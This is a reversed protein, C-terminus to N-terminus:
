GKRRQHICLGGGLHKSFNCNWCLLQFLSSNAEGNLIKAYLDASGRPLGERVFGDNMIHDVNLKDPDSELCCTCRGGLLVIIGHKLEVRRTRRNRNRVTDSSYTRNIMGDSDNCNRCLVRYRNRDAVGSLILRKIQDSHLRAREINGDGNVHDVTLFEYEKEGCNSCEGGLLLICRLRMAANTDHIQRASCVSCIRRTISKHRSHKYFGNTPEPTGCSRCTKRVSLGTDM